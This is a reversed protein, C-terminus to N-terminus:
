FHQMASSFTYIINSEKIFPNHKQAYREYYSSHEVGLNSQFCYILFKENLKFKSFFSQLKNVIDQFQSIYKAPSKCDAFELCDLCQLANNLFGARRPKFISELLNWAGSVNIYHEIEDFVDENFVYQRVNCTQKHGSIRAPKQTVLRPENPQQIFTCFEIM